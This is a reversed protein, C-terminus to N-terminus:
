QRARNGRRHNRGISRRAGASALATFTRTTGICDPRSTRGSIRFRYEFPPDSPSISTKLVDDQHCVPPVTLGHFHLNTSDIDDLWELCSDENKEANMHAHAGDAHAIAPNPGKLDNKLHLVLLDGPKLRLNPSENGNGDLYCYRTSGDADPYNHISLEVKLVGNRSRLDEPEPVSSGIAPRYCIDSPVKQAHLGSHWQAFVLGAFALLVPKKMSLRAEPGPLYM